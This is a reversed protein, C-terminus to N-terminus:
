ALGFASTLTTPKLMVVTIRIEKKLGSLFNRVWFEESLGAIRNSLVEFQSQYEEMTTTQKLKTFAGILDDYASFAFWVKLADIFEAWTGSAELDRLWQYWTLAKGEMHFSALQVRQYEPTLYYDFFQHAQLIWETAESGDFRPFELCITRGQIAGQNEFLPNDHRRGINHEGEETLQGM